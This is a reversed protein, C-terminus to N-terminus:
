SNEICTDEATSNKEVFLSDVDGNSLVAQSKVRVKGGSKIRNEAQWHVAMQTEKEHGRWVRGDMHTLCLHKGEDPYYLWTAWKHWQGDKMQDRAVHGIGDEIFVGRGIAYRSPFIRSLYHSTGAIHPKDPWFFLPTLPISASEHSNPPTYSGKLQKTLSAFASFGLTDAQAHYSLMRASGLGIYQIPISTDEEHAQMLSVINHVPFDTTLTWDHQHVWVYPTETHRLATRVALGFGLRQDPEIFTILQNPTQQLKCTVSNQQAGPAGYEAEDTSTTLPISQLQKHRYYTQLFLTKVNSKYQHYSAAGEATVQGKKLNARPRIHDYTDLAVIVQCQLLAPCHKKFSAIVSTLLETSPASPTPSTTVILTLQEAIGSSATDMVADSVSMIEPILTINDTECM